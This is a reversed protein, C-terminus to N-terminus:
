YTSPSNTAPRATRAIDWGARGAVLLGDVNAELREDLRSLFMRNFNPAEVASDRQLWLIAAEEAHVEVILPIHPAAM